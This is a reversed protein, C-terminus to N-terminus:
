FPLGPVPLVRQLKGGIGGVGTLLARPSLRRVPDILLKRGVFPFATQVGIGKMISGDWRLPLSFAGGIAVHIIGGVKNHAQCSHATNCVDVGGEHLLVATEGNDAVFVDFITGRVGLSATPTKIEYSTKPALGTIFRFAGKSLNISISDPSAGADYVFKDLVIRAEPGVALKTKDLLEVEARADPGTVISEDQHVFDGKALTIKSAASELSVENKVEVTKGIEPAAAAEHWCIVQILSAALVKKKLLELRGNKTIISGAPSVGPRLSLLSYYPLAYHGNGLHAKLRQTKPTM